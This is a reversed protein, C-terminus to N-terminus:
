EVIPAQRLEGAMEAVGGIRIPEFFSRLVPAVQEIRRDAERARAPRVSRPEFRVTRIGTDAPGLGAYMRGQHISRYQIHDALPRQRFSHM